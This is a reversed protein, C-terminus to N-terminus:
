PEPPEIFVVRATEAKNQLNIDRTVLMVPSRPNQRMIEIMSALIRDDNSQPDLWPLAEEVKPEVALARIRSASKILPVGDTLRGRRRYEKIQRILKDARERVDTNRHEVKHRDLESLVTPTLTITFCRFDSFQWSELKPNYLLAPPTEFSNVHQYFPEDAM